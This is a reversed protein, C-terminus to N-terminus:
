MRRPTLHEPSPLTVLLPSNSTQIIGSDLMEHIIKDIIDKQQKAYRYPRKNVLETSQLLPIKHDHGGRSPPLQTPTVFADAYQCLIREIATPIDVKTAHTTLAVSSIQVKTGDAVIVVLPKLDEIKCRIRAAVHVDLFNHTNGSNILIHLPKKNYRGIVCMTRFNPVGTLANVSIQAEEFHTAVEGAHNEIEVTDEEIDDVEMFQIQLKKHTLGHEVFFPEDCFYCLVKVRRESMFAPTLNKTLRPKTKMFEPKTVVLPKPGLLSKIPVTSKNKSPLTAATGQMAASEYVKALNYAKMVSMM